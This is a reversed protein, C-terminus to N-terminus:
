TSTFHFRVYPLSIPKFAYVLITGHLSDVVFRCVNSRCSWQGLGIWNRFRVKEAVELVGMLTELVAKAIDADQVADYQLVDLLSRMGRTGVELKYERCCGKLGLVATRRDDVNPSTQIREVLKDITETPTQVQPGLRANLPASHTRLATSFSSLFSMTHPSFPLLPSTIKSTFDLSPVPINTWWSHPHPPTAHLNTSLSLSYTKHTIVNIILTTEVHDVEFRKFQVSM